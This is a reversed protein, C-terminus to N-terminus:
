FTCPSPGQSLMKIQASTPLTWGPYTVDRNIALNTSTPHTTKLKLFGNPANRIWDWRSLEKGMHQICPAGFFGKLLKKKDPGWNKQIAVLDRCGFIFRRRKASYLLLAESLPKKGRFNKRGRPALFSRDIPHNKIPGFRRTLKKPM